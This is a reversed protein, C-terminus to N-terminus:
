PGCAEKTRQGVIKDIKMLGEWLKENEENAENLHRELLFFQKQLTQYAQLLEEYSM